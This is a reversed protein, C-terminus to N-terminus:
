VESWEVSISSVPATISALNFNICLFQTVGILTLPQGFEEFNFEIYNGPLGTAAVSTAVSRITGVSTGLVTPNVTYSRVVATGAANTSDHPANTQVVSTGGTNATSRKIASITVKIASGSTTTLSVYIRHIRITKSASGGITFVDSAVAAPPVFALASASYTQPEYPL